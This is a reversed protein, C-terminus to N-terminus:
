HHWREIAEVGADTPREIQDENGSTAADIYIIHRQKADPLNVQPPGFARDLILAAARVNGQEAAIAMARLIRYLRPREEPGGESLVDCLAERLDAVTM